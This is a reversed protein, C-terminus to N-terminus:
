GLGLGGGVGLWAAERESDREVRREGETHADASALRSGLFRLGLVGICGFGFGYVWVGM